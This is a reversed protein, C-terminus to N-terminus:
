AAAVQGDRRADAVGSYLAATEALNQLRVARSPVKTGAWSVARAVPWLVRASAPVTSLRDALREFSGPDDTFVLSRHQPHLELLLMRNRGEQRLKRLREDASPSFDHEVEAEPDYAVEVGAAVLRIALELDEPGYGRFRESFRHERMLGVPMSANAFTIDVPDSLREQTALRNWREDYWDRAAVAGVDDRRIACPGMLVPAASRDWGLHAALAATSVTM